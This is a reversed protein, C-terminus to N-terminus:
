WSATNRTTPTAKRKATWRKHKNKIFNKNKCGGVNVFCPALVGLPKRGRGHHTPVKTMAPPLLGVKSASAKKTGGQM